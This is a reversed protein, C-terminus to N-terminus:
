EALWARAAAEGTDPFYKVPAQRLGAGSFALVEAEWRPDGVAAIKAIDDRHAFFFETDDWAAGREWGSFGELVVLLKIPGAAVLHQAFDAQVADLESKKLEGGIRLLYLDGDQYELNASM